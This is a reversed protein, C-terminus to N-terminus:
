FFSKKVVLFCNFCPRIRRGRMIINRDQEFFLPHQPKGHRKILLRNRQTRIKHFRVEIKAVHEIRQAAGVIYDVPTHHSFALTVGIDM